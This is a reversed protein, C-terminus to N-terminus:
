GKKRTLLFKMTEAKSDGSKSSTWYEEIHDADIFRIRLDRM